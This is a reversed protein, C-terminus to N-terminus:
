NLHMLHVCSNRAGSARVRSMLSNCRMPALTSSDSARAPQCRIPLRRLLAGASPKTASVFVSIPGSSALRGLGSRVALRDQWRNNTSSISRPM